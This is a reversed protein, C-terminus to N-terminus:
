HIPQPLTVSPRSLTSRFDFAAPGPSSWANREARESSTKIGNLISGQTPAVITSEAASANNSETTLPTSEDAGNATAKGAVAEVAAEHKPAKRTDESKTQNDYRKGRHQETDTPATAQAPEKTQHTKGNETPTTPDM